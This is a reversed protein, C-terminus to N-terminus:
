TQHDKKVCSRYSRAIDDWRGSIDNAIGHTNYAGGHLFESFVKHMMFPLHVENSLSGLMEKSCTHAQILIYTFTHAHMYTRIYTYMTHIHIHIYVSYVYTHVDPIPIETSFATCNKTFVIHM